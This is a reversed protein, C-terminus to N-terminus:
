IAATMKLGANCEDIRSLHPDGARYGAVMGDNLNNHLL